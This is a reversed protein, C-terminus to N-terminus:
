ITTVATVRLIWKMQRLSRWYVIVSKQHRFFVWKGEAMAVDFLFNPVERINALMIEATAANCTTISCADVKNQGLYNQVYISRLGKDSAPTSLWVTKIAYNYDRWGTGGIVLVTGIKSRAYEKLQFAAFKDACAYVLAHITLLGHIKEDLKTSHHINGSVDYEAEYFYDM